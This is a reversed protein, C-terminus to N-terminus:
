TQTCTKINEVSKEIKKYIKDAGKVDFCKILERVNISETKDELHAIVLGAQNEWIVQNRIEVDNLIERSKKQMEKLEELKKMDTKRKKAKPSRDEIEVIESNDKNEGSSSTKNIYSHRAEIM